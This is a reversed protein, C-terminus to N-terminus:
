VRWVRVACIFVVFVNISCMIRFVSEYLFVCVRLGNHTVLSTQYIKTVNVVRVFVRFNTQM